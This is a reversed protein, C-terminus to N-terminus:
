TRASDILRQLERAIPMRRFPSVNAGGTNGAPVLGFPTKTAAGFVRLLQGAVEAARRQRLGWLLMLWHVRVHLWTSPQGLVHARELHNFAATADGLRQARRAAAIEAEVHPRIRTTFRTM